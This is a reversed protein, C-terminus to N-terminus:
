WGGGSQKARLAAVEAELAKIRAAREKNAQRYYERVEPSNYRHQTCYGTKNGMRLRKGCTRCKPTIADVALTEARMREVAREDPSLVPMDRMTAQVLIQQVRQRTLGYRSGIELLTPYPHSNWADVIEKARAADFEPRNGM